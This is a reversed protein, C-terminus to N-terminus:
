SSQPTEGFVLKKLMSRRTKRIGTDTRPFKSHLSSALLGKWNPDQCSDPSQIAIGLEENGAANLGSFVCVEDVGPERQIRQEATAAAYKIGRVKLVDDVRDSHAGDARRVAMDGPYFFEDRFM